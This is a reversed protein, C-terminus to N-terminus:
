NNSPFAWVRSGSENVAIVTTTNNHQGVLILDGAAVASGYLETGFDQNWQIAGDLSASIVRGAENIVYISDNLGLPTGTISGGTELTWNQAGSAPDLSYLFGSLDGLLLQGEYMAPTGWVWGDTPVRWLVEGGAADVALVESNFSGIYLVGEHLLPGAALTGGTDLTWLVQGSEADLAYLFHNLSSIYVVGDGLAPKGWQPHTTTFTWLLVGAHDFTYLNHDANSAYIREGDVLPSAIFQGEAGDFSWELAGNAPTVAYFNHNYGGFFLQGDGLAPEAFATFGNDRETPFAWVSAGSQSNLATINNQYAVYVRSNAEDVHIGPWSLPAVTGCASLALSLLSLVALNLLTNKKM